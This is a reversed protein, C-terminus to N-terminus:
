FQTCLDQGFQTQLNLQNFKPWGAGGTIPDAAPLPFKPEAKICSARLTQTEESHKNLSCNIVLTTFYNFYLYNFYM